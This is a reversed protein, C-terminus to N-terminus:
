VFCLGRFRAEALARLAACWCLLSRTFSRTLKEHKEPMHTLLPSRAVQEFEIKKKRETAQCQQVGIGSIPPSTSSTTRRFFFCIIGRVCECLRTLCHQSSFNKKKEVACWLTLLSKREYGDFCSILAKRREEGESKRESKEWLQWFSVRFSSCILVLLLRSSNRKIRSNKAGFSRFMEEIRAISIIEFIGRLIGSPASNGNLFYKENTLTLTEDRASGNDIESTESEDPSVNESQFISDSFMSSHLVIIFRRRPPALSFYHFCCM